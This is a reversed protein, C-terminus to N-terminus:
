GEATDRRLAEVQQFIIRGPSANESSAYISIQANKDSYSVISSSVIVPAAGEILTAEKKIARVDEM